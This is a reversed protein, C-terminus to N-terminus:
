PYPLFISIFNNDFRIISDQTRRHCTRELQLDEKKQLHRIFNLWKGLEM